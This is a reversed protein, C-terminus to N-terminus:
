RLSIYLHHIFTSVVLNSVYFIHHWWQNCAGLLKDNRWLGMPGMGYRGYFGVFFLIAFCLIITIYLYRYIYIRLVLVLKQTLRTSDNFKKMFLICTLFGTIVFFTDFVYANSTTIQYFPDGLIKTESSKENDMLYTVSSVQLVSSYTYGIVLWFVSLARIGDISQLFDKPRDVFLLAMNHRISFITAIKHWTPSTPHREPKKKDDESLDEPTWILFSYIFDAMTGCGNIIAIIIVFSMATVWTKDSSPNGFRYQNSKRDLCRVREEDYYEDTWPIFPLVVTHAAKEVNQISREVNNFLLNLVESSCSKPVCIGLSTPINYPSSTVCFDTQVILDDGANFCLDSRGLWASHGDSIGSSPKGWADIIKLAQLNLEQWMSFVILSDMSCDPSIGNMVDTPVKLITETLYSLNGLSAYTLYDEDARVLEDFVTNNFPLIQYFALLYQYALDIKVITSSKQSVGILDNGHLFLRKCDNIFINGFLGFFYAIQKGQLAFYISNTFVELVDPNCMTSNGYTLQGISESQYLPADLACLLKPAIYFRWIPSSLVFCCEHDTGTYDTLNICIVNGVQQYDGIANLILTSNFLCAESTCSQAFEDLNILTDWTPFAWQGISAIWDNQHLISALEIGDTAVDFWSKKLYNQLRLLGSLADRDWREITLINQFINIADALENENGNLANVNGYFDMIYGLTENVPTNLSLVNDFLFM